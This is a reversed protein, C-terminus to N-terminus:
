RRNKGYYEEETIRLTSFIPFMYKWDRPDIAGCDFKEELNHYCQRLYRDNHWEKFPRSTFRDSYCWKEFKSRDVKYGRSKMETSVLISYSYLESKDYELVKNVLIHNPTGNVTINRAICCLERWQALLQKNPLVPILDVHWIRM